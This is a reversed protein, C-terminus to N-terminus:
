RKYDKLIEFCLLEYTDVDLITEIVDFNLCGHALLWTDNIICSEPYFFPINNYGYVVYIKNM